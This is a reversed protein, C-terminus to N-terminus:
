ARDLQLSRLRQSWLTPGDTARDAGGAEPADCSSDSLALEVAFRSQKLNKSAVPIGLASGIIDWLAMDLASTAHIVLGKRGYYLTSRWMIDWLKDTDFPDEGIVLKTLHREIVFSCGPGGFGVGKVDKDTTIEVAELGLDNAM